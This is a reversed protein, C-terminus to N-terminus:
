AHLARAAHCKETASVDMGSVWCPQGLVSNHLVSNRLVGVCRSGEIRESAQKIGRIAASAIFQEDSETM